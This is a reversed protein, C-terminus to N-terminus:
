EMSSSSGKDVVGCFAKLPDDHKLGDWYLFEVYEDARCPNYMLPHEVDVLEDMVSVVGGVTSWCGFVMSFRERNSLMRVRHVCSPVRGNTVVTFLEGALFTFTNPEPDISLWSGDKAQVELGEVEHQVILTSMNFDRHMKLSLGNVTDKPAGYHWFRLTHTLSCLHSGINEEQVGLGEMAMRHVTQELKLLNKAFPLTIDCFEPNGEPWFLNAFGHISGKDTPEDISVSENDVEADKNGLYGRFKGMTSVNRQKTELPLTFLEPLARGFLAQRGEQGLADYTIVICGHALLSATVAARAEQWGPLGPEVGRLDVKTIGM